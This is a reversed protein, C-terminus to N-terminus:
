VVPARMCHTSLLTGHYKEHYLVGCYIALGSVLTDLACLIYSSSAELGNVVSEVRQGREFM